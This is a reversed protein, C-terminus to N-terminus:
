GGFLEDNIKKVFNKQNAPAILIQWQKYKSDLGVYVIIQGANKWDAIRTSTIESIQKGRTKNIVLLPTIEEFSLCAKWEGVANAEHGEVFEVSVDKVTLTMEGIKEVFEASLYNPPFLDELTADAGLTPMPPAHRPVENKPAFLVRTEKQTSVLKNNM